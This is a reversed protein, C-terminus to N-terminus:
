VALLDYSLIISSIPCVQGDSSVATATVFERRESLVDNPFGLKDITPDAATDESNSMEFLVAGRTSQERTEKAVQIVSSAIETPPIFRLSGMASRGRVGDRWHFLDRYLNDSPPLGAAVNHDLMADDLM